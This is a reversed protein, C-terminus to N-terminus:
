IMLIIARNRELRGELDFALSKGARDIVENLSVTSTWGYRTRPGESRNVITLASKGSLRGTELENDFSWKSPNREPAEDTDPMDAIDLDTGGGAWVEKSLAEINLVLPDDTILSLVVERSGRSFSADFVLWLYEGVDM